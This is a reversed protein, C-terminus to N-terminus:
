AAAPPVLGGGAPMVVAGPEEGGCGLGRCRLSTVSRLWLPPVSTVSRSGVVEGRSVAVTISTEGRLRIPGILSRWRAICM